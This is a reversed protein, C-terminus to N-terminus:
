RGQGIHDKRQGSTAAAIPAVALAFLLVVVVPAFVPLWAVELPVAVVALGVCAFGVAGLLTQWTTPLSQVTTTAEAHIMLLYLTAALGAASALVASPEGLALVAVCALVAPAAASRIWASLVVLLAAPAAVAMAITPASPLTAAVMVLGAAVAFLRYALNQPLKQSTKTSTM